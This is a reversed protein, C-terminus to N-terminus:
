ADDAAELLKAARDTWAALWAEFPEPELSRSFLYGQARDCGAARLWGLTAVDEVGEAVTRLGLRHGLEITSRVIAEAEPRRAIESVFAREIKLESCPLQDLRELSSSGTGFDDISLEVGRLRLRSLVELFSAREALAASETVELVLRDPAVSAAALLDGVREPLTRDALVVPALNVAVTLASVHDHIADRRVFDLALELIRATMPHILGCSEALPVFALPPVIGHSEHRWRVLAEAGAPRLTRLDVIPQYELFLRDRDIADRLEDADFAPMARPRSATPTRLAVARRRAEDLLERLEAMALPKALPRGVELGHERALSSASRLLRPDAGSLVHVVAPWARRALDRLLDIGDAGPLQLDVLVLDPVFEPDAGVREASDAVRVEWGGRRAVEAILTALQPDDDVVLLRTRRPVAPDGSDDPSSGERADHHRRTM